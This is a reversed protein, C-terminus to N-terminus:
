PLDFAFRLVRCIGAHRRVEAIPGTSGETLPVLEGGPGAVFIEVIAGSLIREGEGTETVVYGLKRLDDPLTSDPLCEMTVETRGAISTLFGNRKTVFENLAAFRAKRDEVTQPKSKAVMAAYATGPIYNRESASM